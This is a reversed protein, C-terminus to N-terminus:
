LDFTDSGYVGMEGVWTMNSAEDGDGEGEGEGEV